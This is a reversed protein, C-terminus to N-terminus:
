VLGLAQVKDTLANVFQALDETFLRLNEYAVRLDNIDTLKAFVAGAETNDFGTYAVTEADATYAGLTVDATAYTQVLTVGKVIPTAGFFGLKQTTTTGIQTGTVTGLEINEGDALTYDGAAVPVWMRNRDLYTLQNSTNVALRTHKYGIIQPFM